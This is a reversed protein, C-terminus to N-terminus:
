KTTFFALFITEFLKKEDKSLEIQLLNRITVDNDTERKEKDTYARLGFESYFIKLGKTPKINDKIAGKEKLYFYIKAPENKKGKPLEQWVENAVYGNRTLIALLEAQKTGLVFDQTFLGSFTLPTEPPPPTPQEDAQPDSEIIWSKKEEEFKTRAQEKIKERELKYSTLFAIFNEKTFLEKYHKSDGYELGKEKQMWENFCSGYFASQMAIEFKNKAQELAGYLRADALLEEISDYKKEM